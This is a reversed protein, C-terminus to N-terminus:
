RFSTCWDLTFTYLIQKSNIYGSMYRLYMTFDESNYDPFTMSAKIQNTLTDGSM